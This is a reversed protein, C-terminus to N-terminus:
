TGYTRESDSRIIVFRFAVGDGAPNDELQLTGGHAAAIKRALYLGLGSGPAARQSLFLKRDFLQSSARLLHLHCAGCRHQGARGAASIAPNAEMGDHPQDVVEKGGTIRGNSVDRSAAGGQMTSYALPDHRGVRVGRWFRIRTCCLRLTSRNVPLLPHPFYGQRQHVLRVGGRSAGNETRLQWASGWPLLFCSGIGSTEM